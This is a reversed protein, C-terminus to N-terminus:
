WKEEVFYDKSLLQSDVLQVASIYRLDLNVIAATKELQVVDKMSTTENGDFDFARLLSVHIRNQQRDVDEIRFYVTDVKEKSNTLRLPTSKSTMLVFPITDTGIMKVLLNDYYKSRVSTLTDQFKKIDELAESLQYNKCHQKVM